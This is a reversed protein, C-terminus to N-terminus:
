KSGGKKKKGRKIRELRKELFEIAQQIAELNIPGGIPEDREMFRILDKRYFRWQQGVKFGQIKGRGLWRYLTPKSTNLLEVAQNLDLVEEHGKVGKEAM